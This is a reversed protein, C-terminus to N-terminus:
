CSASGGPLARWSSCSGSCCFIGIPSTRLRSRASAALAAESPLKTDRAAEAEPSIRTKQDEHAFPNAFDIRRGAIGRDSVFKAIRALYVGIRYPVTGEAVDRRALEAARRFDEPELLCPDRAKDALAAYLYRGARIANGHGSM